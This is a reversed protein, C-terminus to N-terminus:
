KMSHLGFMNGETDIGLAVFGYNGISIKPRQVRGGAGAIRAEEAACDASHFYVLVSNGGPTVSSSRVLAGGSGPQSVDGPFLMMNLESGPLPQLTVQLVTEYFAQARAMDQVYIEFWNVPNAAM